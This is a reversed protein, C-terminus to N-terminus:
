YILLFAVITLLISVLLRAMPAPPREPAEGIDAPEGAADVPTAIPAEATPVPDTPIM